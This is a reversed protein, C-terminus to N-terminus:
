RRDDDSGDKDDGNGDGRRTAEGDMPPVPLLGSNETDRIVSYVQPFCRSGLTALTVVLNRLLGESVYANTAYPATDYDEM